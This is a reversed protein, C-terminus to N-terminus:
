SILGLRFGEAVARTRDEAGVKRLIRRVHTKVTQESIFIDEGIRRNSKGEAIHRLVEVERATLPVARGNHVHPGASRPHAPSQVPSPMAARASGRQVSRWVLIGTVVPVVGAVVTVGRDRAQLAGRPRGRRSCVIITPYPTRKQLRRIVITREAATLEGDVVALGPPYADALCPAAGVVIHVRDAIGLGGALADLRRAVDRSRVHVLLGPSQGEDNAATADGRRSLRASISWESRTM